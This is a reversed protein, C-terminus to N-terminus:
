REPNLIKRKQEQFEEETLAGKERLNQLRELEALSDNLPASSPTSQGQFQNKYISKVQDMWAQGVPVETRGYVVLSEAVLDHVTQKRESFLAFIFGLFFLGGSIAKVLSRLLAARFELRQGSMDVVEIGVLYKGPTARLASSEFIPAYLFYAVLGGIIPFLGAALAAPICLIAGDLILALARRSLSAYQTSNLTNM